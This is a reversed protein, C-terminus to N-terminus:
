NTLLETTVVVSTVLDTVLDTRIVRELWQTFLSSWTRSRIRTVVVTKGRSNVYYKEPVILSPKELWETILLFYVSVNMFFANDNSNFASNDFLLVRTAQIMRSCFLTVLITASKILVVREYVFIFCDLFYHCCTKIEGEDCNFFQNLSDQFNDKFKQKICGQNHNNVLEKQLTNFKRKKWYSCKTKEM